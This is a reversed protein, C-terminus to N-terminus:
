CLDIEWDFLISFAVCIHIPNSRSWFNFTLLDCHHLYSQFKVTLPFFIRLFCKKNVMRVDNPNCTFLPERSVFWNSAALVQIEPSGPQKKGISAKLQRSNRGIKAKGSKQLNSIQEDTEGPSKEGGMSMKCHKEGTGRRGLTREVGRGGGDERDPWIVRNTTMRGNRVNQVKTQGALM